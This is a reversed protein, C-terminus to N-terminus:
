EFVPDMGAKVLADRRKAIWGKYFADKDDPAAKTYEAWAAKLTAQRKLLQDNHAQAADNWVGAEKLARVAGPHYPLVWTLNQRKVELGDAGPAGDKYDAYNVIMARTIGYILDAPQADYAMFIPYPYAPIEQPQEKSLGGAGCTVGHPYFYPGVKRVREWAAKDAAPAPPWVLGRPSADVERAQGSITSAFAADAENNVLGKWMAGYSSFEVIRVDSQKLGGYALIALANQNLAPSGVVFGVRKGRLDKIEKVGTDKAVGLSLGNCSTSALMLQLAQPGWDKAGFEFVGEQAFYGGVGMASAQARGAKLPALRAIDNGGPLVRLDSGHREKMMKGVAVAMNFGSSGTDYATMTLSPPLKIDQAQSPALAALLAGFLVVGLPARRSRFLAVPM